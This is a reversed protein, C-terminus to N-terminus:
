SHSFGPGSDVGANAFVVDIQGHKEAVLDFAVALGARDSVDTVQGWTEGAIEAVTTSLPDSDMDLICVRAGYEAMIEAYARGLGSAGGTVIVSKGAVAFMEELSQM